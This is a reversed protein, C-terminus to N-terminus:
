FKGVKSEFEGSNLISRYFQGRVLKCVSFDCLLVLLGDINGVGPLMYNTFFHGKNIRPLKNLVFALPASCICSVFLEFLRLMILIGVPRLCVLQSNVHIVSNFWPSGLVVGALPWFLIQVRTLVNFHLARLWEAM